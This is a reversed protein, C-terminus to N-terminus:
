VESLKNTTVKPKIFNYFVKLIGLVALLYTCFLVAFLAPLYKSYFFRISFMM